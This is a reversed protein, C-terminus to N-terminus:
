LFYIEGLVTGGTTADEPLEIHVTYIGPPLQLLVQAESTRSREDLPFAGVRPTVQAVPATYSTRSASVVREAGRFVTLKTRPAPDPVGYRALSPGVARILVDTATDGGIILGMILPLDGPAIRGRASQQPHTTAEPDGTLRVVGEVAFGSVRGSQSSVVVDNNPLVPWLPAPHEFWLARSWAPDIHGDPLLRKIMWMSTPFGDLTGIMYGPDPPPAPRVFRSPNLEGESGDLATVTGDQIWSILLRGANDWQIQNGSGAGAAFWVHQGFSTKLSGDLNFVACFTAGDPLGPATGSGIVALGFRPDYRGGVIGAGTANFSVSGTRILPEITGDLGIRHVGAQSVCVISAGDRVLLLIGGNRAADARNKLIPTVNGFRDAHALNFLTPEPFVIPDDTFDIEDARNTFHGGFYCGGVGDPAIASVSPVLYDDQPNVQTVALAVPTFSPDVSGDQRLRAIHAGKSSVSFSGGVFVSGEEGLAFTDLDSLGYFELGCHFSDLVTGEADTMVLEGNSFRQALLNGDPLVRWVRLQPFPRGVTGAAFAM